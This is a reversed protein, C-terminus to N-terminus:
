QPRPNAIHIENIISKYLFTYDDPHSLLTIVLLDNENVGVCNAYGTQDQFPGKERTIHVMFNLFLNTSKNYLTISSETQPETTYPSFIYFHHSFFQHNLGPIIKIYTLGLFPSIKSTLLNQDFGTFLNKIVQILFTLESM